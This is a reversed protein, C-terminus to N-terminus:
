LHVQQFGQQFGLRDGIEGWPSPCLDPDKRASGSAERGLFAFGSRLYEALRPALSWPPLHRLSHSFLGRLNRVDRLGGPSTTAIRLGRM